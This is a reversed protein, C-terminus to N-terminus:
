PRTAAQQLMTDLEKRPFYRGRLIVSDIKQTNHIDKTPDATLLVLDASKGPEVTGFDAKPGFYRAPNRTATQLAELPSLGSKVLLALEEHLSFGPIIPNWGNTDTGALFEVGARHMDGVLKEHRDLLAHIRANLADYDAPSLDKLFFTNRPDWSDTWSKLAYKRNPDRLFSEDRVSAFGELLVLTPTQWTGDRVFTRFLNAAKIESYTESLAVPDPFALLRMRPEGPMNPDLMAAIRAARFEDERTSCAQLINILHEQSRQGADAAEAPNVAEPVHGAFPIGIARAEAALAFYADRPISNYTKLFDVGTQALAHVAFRAQDPTEVAIAGPPAPGSWLMPPGDIFGPAAIRPVDARARWSRITDMPIGTFMERVGTIGNAILLPFFIEPPGLHIHMDWLGPILFKGRGDVIQTGRPAKIKKRIESIRVGTIAVDLNKRPAAGTVDIVTVNKIVLSQAFLSSSLLCFLIQRSV